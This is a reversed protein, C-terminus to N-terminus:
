LKATGMAAISQDGLFVAFVKDYVFTNVVFARIVQMIQLFYVLFVEFFVVALIFILEM